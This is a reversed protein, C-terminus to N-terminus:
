IIVFTMALAIMGIGANNRLINSWNILWRSLWSGFSDLDFGLALTQLVVMVVLVVGTSFLPRSAWSDAFWGAFGRRGEM